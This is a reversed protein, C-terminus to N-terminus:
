NKFDNGLYIDDYNSDISKISDKVEEIMKAYEPYVEIQNKVSKMANLITGRQKRGVIDLIEQTYLNTNTKLFYIAIHKAKVEEGSQGGAFLMNNKIDFYKEIGSIIQQKTFIEKM